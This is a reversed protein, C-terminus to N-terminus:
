LNMTRKKKTSPSFLLFSTHIQHYTPQSRRRKTHCIKPSNVVGAVARPSQPISFPNKNKQKEARKKEATVKSMLSEVMRFNKLAYSIVGKRIAFSIFRLQAINTEVKKNFKALTFKSKPNRRFPDFMIKGQSNMKAKYESDLFVKTGDDCVVILGEKAM